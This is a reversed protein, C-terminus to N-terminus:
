QKEILIKEIKYTKRQVNPLTFIDGVMKGILNKQLPRLKLDVNVTTETNEELILAKIKCQDIVHSIEEHEKIEPTQVQPIIKKAERRVIIDNEVITEKEIPYVTSIRKFTRVLEMKGMVEELAIKQPVYIGQFVYAGNRSKAFCIRYSYDEQSASIDSPNFWIEKIMDPRVFINYWRRSKNFSENLNSHALMWVSYGENTAYKAYLMKQAAFNGRLQRKFGFLTCCRDYNDIAKTGASFGIKLVNEENM